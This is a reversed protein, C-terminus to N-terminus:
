KGNSQTEEMMVGCVWGEKKEKEYLTIFVTSSGFYEYNGVSLVFYNRHIGMPQKWTYLGFPNHTIALIVKPKM